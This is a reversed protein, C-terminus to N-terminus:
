RRETEAPTVLHPWGARDLQVPVFRLTPSANGQSLGVELLQGHNWSALAPAGDFVLNGLSYVIARGHYFDLPQLCHPHSGAILDVGHDILWRA